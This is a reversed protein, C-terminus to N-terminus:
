LKSRFVFRRNLVFAIVAMPALLLFGALYMDFAYHRFVKLVGTNLIYIITYVGFFRFILNNDASGFVLRGTTRFNFLVGLVTSLFAALSYHFKLYIFLAFVLYGFAANIGGVILFRLFRYDM